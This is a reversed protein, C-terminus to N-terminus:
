RSQLYIEVPESTKRLGLVAPSGAGRPRPRLPGVSCNNYSLVQPLPEVSTKFTRTRPGSTGFIKPPVDLGSTTYVSPTKSM